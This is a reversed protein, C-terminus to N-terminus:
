EYTTVNEVTGDGNYWTESILKGNEDYEYIQYWDTTGDASFQSYRIM